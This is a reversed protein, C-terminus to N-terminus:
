VAKWLIVLNNKEWTEILNATNMVNKNGIYPTDLVLLDESKELFLNEMNAILQM